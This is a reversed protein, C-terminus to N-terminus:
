GRGSKQWLKMFYAGKNKVGSREAIDKALRMMAEGDGDKALKIYLSKHKDDQLIQAVELGVLQYKRYVKSEKARKKLETLYSDDM